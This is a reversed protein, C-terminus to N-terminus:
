CKKEYSDSINESVGRCTVTASLDLRYTKGAKMAYSGSFVHYSSYSTESLRSVETYGGWFDKESLVLTASISSTAQVGAIKVSYTGSSNISADVSVTNVWYPSPETPEVASVTTFCMSFCLIALLLTTVLKKM